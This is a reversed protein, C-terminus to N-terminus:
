CIYIIFALKKESDKMQFNLIGKRHGNSEKFKAM